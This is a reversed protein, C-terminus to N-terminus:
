ENSTRNLSRTRWHEGRNNKKKRANSWLHACLCARTRARARKAENVKKECNQKRFIKTFILSFGIFPTEKFPEGYVCLFFALSFSFSGGFSVKKLIVRYLTKIKISSEEAHQHLIKINILM